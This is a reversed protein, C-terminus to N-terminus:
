NSAQQSDRNQPKFDQAPKYEHALALAATREREAAAADGLQAKLRALRLHAVFAPAEETKSSGALYDDLMTAALAPDRHAKTLLGAGDYLAVGAQKEHLAASLVSHLASEMEDFRQRRAYFAALASWGLAPHTGATVMKKYESEAAPFDKKQEAIRGRLEDARAQDVKELQAVIGEAKDIGGGVVAPAQRYFDGLDSLAQVNRPNLRVADEFEARTRKALSYATLFSARSAKEGLARGLWLHDDSNEADLHVAQECAAAAADWQELTLRVRCLLNQAEAAGTGSQPFTALLALAKDAEGAQLAANAESLSPAQTPASSGAMPANASLMPAVIAIVAALLAPSPSAGAIRSRSM